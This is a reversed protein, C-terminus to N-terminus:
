FIFLIRKIIIQQTDILPSLLFNFFPTFCHCMARIMFNPTQLNFLSKCMLTLMSISCDAKVRDIKTKPSRMDKRGFGWYQCHFEGVILGLDWCGQEHQQSPDLRELRVTEALRDIILPSVKDYPCYSNNAIANVIFQWTKNILGLRSRM